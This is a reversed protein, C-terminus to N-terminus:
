SEQKLPMHWERKGSGLECCCESSPEHTVQWNSHNNRTTTLSTAKERSWKRVCVCVFVSERQTHTHTIIPSVEWNVDFVTSFYYVTFLTAIFYNIYRLYISVEKYLEKVGM